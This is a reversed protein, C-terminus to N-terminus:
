RRGGGAREMWGVLFGQEDVDCRRLWSAEGGRPEEDSDLELFVRGGESDARADGGGVCWEVAKPEKLGRFTNRLLTGWDVMSPALGSQIAKLAGRIAEHLAREGAADTSTGKDSNSSIGVFGDGRDRLGRQNWNRVAEREPVVVEELRVELGAVTREWEVKAKASLWPYLRRAEDFTLWKPGEHEDGWTAMQGAARIRADLLMPAPDIGLGGRKETDFLSISELERFHPRGAHLPDWVEPEVAWRWNEHADCRTEDVQVLSSIFMFIDGLYKHQGRLQKELVESLHRWSALRPDGQVGWRSLSLALASRAAARQSTDARDALARTFAVYFASCGIAWLHRRVGKTACGGGEYLGCVPTSADRRAKRNFMRRWEREVGEMWEFSYYVTSCKFGALGQFLGNTVLVMDERSPRHMRAVRGIAVRLQKRLSESAANDGGMAARLVGLHKYAESMGLLPVRTGDITVLNPDAIDRESGSDDRIVGTVVTKLKNKIGLKSGSIPVWVNWIAWARQLDAESSFTGAWDDAYALSAIARICGEEDEGFGFLAVGHVHLKIAWLISNLMIKARDPSLVEGMLAGMHNKFMASLGIATDFQCEVSHAAVARGAGYIKGILEMVEPPLGILVEAVTLAERDIRPFFTALDVYLIWISQRLRQAQQIVAALPLGADM